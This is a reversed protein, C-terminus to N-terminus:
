EFIITASTKTGPQLTNPPRRKLSPLILRNPQPTNDPIKEGEKPVDEIVIPNNQNEDMTDEKIQYPNM